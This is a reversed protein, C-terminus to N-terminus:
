RGDKHGPFVAKLICSEGVQLELRSTHMIALATREVMQEGGQVKWRRVERVVHVRCAFVELLPLPQIMLM